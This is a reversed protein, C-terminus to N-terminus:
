ARSASRAGRGVAEVPEIVDVFVRAATARLNVESVGTGALLGVRCCYLAEDFTPDALLARLGDGVSCALEPWRAPFVQRLGELWRTEWTELETRSELHTLALVRGLDKAHRHVDPRGGIPSSMTHASLTRHSLLNALAMMSPHAYFLSGFPVRGVETLALFEFGPLGYWGDDLEVHVWPKAGPREVGPVILLEVFYDNHDPPYLRIAPLQDAPTDATGPAFAGETRPRWGLARLRRAIAQAGITNGAPRVVLDADKTRVGGSPLREAHHCAAALSGAVFVQDHLEVPLERALQGLLTRPNVITDSM